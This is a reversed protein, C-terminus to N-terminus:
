ELVVDAFFSIITEHHYCINKEMVDIKNSINDEKEKPENTQFDTPNFLDPFPIKINESPDAM